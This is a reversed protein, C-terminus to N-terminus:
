HPRALLKRWNLLPLYRTVRAAFKKYAPTVNLNIIKIYPIAGVKEGLKGEIRKKLLYFYNEGKLNRIYIPAIVTGTVTKGNIMKFTFQYGIRPRTRGSYLKIDSGMQQFKYERIEHAYRVKGIIQRVLRIDVDRYQKIGALWVRFPTQETTWIQGRIIQGTSLEVSGTRTRSAGRAQDSFPPPHAGPAFKVAPATAAPAGNLLSQLSQAYVAASFWGLVAGLLLVKIVIRNVYTQTTQMSVNHRAGGAKNLKEILVQM